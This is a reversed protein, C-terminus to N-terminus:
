DGFWVWTPAAGTWSLAINQGAPVRVSNQTNAKVVLMTNVANISVSVDVAGAKIFATADGGLFNSQSSTTSPAPPQAGWGNAASGFLGIPNMPSANARLVPLNTVNATGYAKTTFGSVRNERVHVDTAASAVSGNTHGLYIGYAQQPTSRTDFVSNGKLLTNSAPFDSAIGASPVVYGTSTLGGGTITYSANNLYNANVISNDAVLTGAISAGSAGENLVLIGFDGPTDIANQAVICQGGAVVSGHPNSGVFGLLIRGCYPSSPYLIASGSMQNGTIILRTPNYLVSPAYGLNTWCIVNAPSTIVNDCISSDVCAEFYLNRNALVTNQRFDVFTAVALDLCSTRSAYNANWRNRWINIRSPANSGTMGGGIGDNQGGLSFQSDQVTVDTIPTGHTTQGAIFVGFSNIDYFHVREIVWGACPVVGPAYGANASGGSNRYQGDIMLDSITASSSSDHLYSFAGASGIAYGGSPNIKITTNASVGSGNPEDGMGSGILRQGELVGILPPTATSSGILFTGPPFYVTGNIGAATVASNIANTDDTTGDGVAGYDKM